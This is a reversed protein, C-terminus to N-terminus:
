NLECDSQIWDIGKTKHTQVSALLRNQLQDTLDYIYRHNFVESVIMVILLWCLDMSRHGYCQNGKIHVVEYCCVSAQLDGYLCILACGCLSELVVLCSLHSIFLFMNPQWVPAQILSPASSSHQPATSHTERPLHFEITSIPLNWCHRKSNSVSLPM